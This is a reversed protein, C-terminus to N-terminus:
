EVPRIDREDWVIRGTTDFYRLWRGQLSRDLPVGDRSYAVVPENVRALGDRFSFPVLFQPEIVMNGERNIAGWLGERNSFPGPQDLEVAVAALGESFPNVDAFQPEIVFEGSHDIFGWRLPMEPNGESDRIQVAALGDSFPKLNIWNDGMFARDGYRDIFFNGIWTERLDRLAKVAAYGESFSYTHTAIYIREPIIVDGQEDLFVVTRLDREPSDVVCLLRGDQYHHEYGTFREGPFPSWELVSLGRDSLGFLERGTTDIVFHRGDREVVAKGESFIGAKDFQDPFVPEGTRINIFSWMEGRLVWAHERGNLKIADYEPPLVFEGNVDIVAYDTFDSGSFGTVVVAHGAKFPYALHFRPEIAREGAIDIYGYRAFTQRTLPASFRADPSAGVLQYGSLILAGLLCLQRCSRTFGM